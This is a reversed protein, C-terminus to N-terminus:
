IAAQFEREWLMTRPKRSWTVPAPFLRECLDCLLLPRLPPLLCNDTSLVVRVRASHPQGPYQPQAYDDLGAM